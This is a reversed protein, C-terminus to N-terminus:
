KDPNRFPGSRKQFLSYAGLKEWTPTFISVLSGFRVPCLSKETKVKLRNPKTQWVKFNQFGTQNETRPIKKM